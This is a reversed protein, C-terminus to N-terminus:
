DLVESSLERGQQIAYDPGALTQLWHLLQSVSHFVYEEGTEVDEIYGSAEDLDVDVGSKLNLVFVRKM